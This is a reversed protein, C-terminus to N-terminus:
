NGSRDRRKRQDVAGKSASEAFETLVRYLEPDDEALTGDELSGKAAELRDLEGLLIGRDGPDRIFRLQATIVALRRALEKEMFPKFHSAAERDELLMQYARVALLKDLSPDVEDLRGRELADRASLLRERSMATSTIDTDFGFRNQATRAATEAEAIGRLSAASVSKLLSELVKAKYRRLEQETPSDQAASRPVVTLVDTLDFLIAVDPVGPERLPSEELFAEELRERDIARFQRDRERQTLRTTDSARAIRVSKGVLRRLLPSRVWSVSRTHKRDQDYETVFLIETFQVRRAEESDASRGRIANADVGDVRFGYLATESSRTTWIDVTQNELQSLEEQPVLHCWRLVPEEAEAANRGVWLAVIMGVWLSPKMTM